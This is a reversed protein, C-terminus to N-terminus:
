DRPDASADLARDLLAEITETRDQIAREGGTREERCRFYDDAINIAALTAVRVLDGHPAKAAVTRMKQQVYAVLRDVHAPDLSSRIAYQQGMIDVVIRTSAADADDAREAEPPLGSSTAQFRGISPM